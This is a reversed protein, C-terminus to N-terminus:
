QPDRGPSEWGFSHLIIPPHFFMFKLIKSKQWCNTIHKNVLLLCL